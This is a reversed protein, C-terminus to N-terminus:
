LIVDGDANAPDAEKMLHAALERCQAPTLVTRIWVSNLTINLFIEGDKEWESPEISGESMEVRIHVRDEFSVMPRGDIAPAPLVKDVDVWAPYDHGNATRDAELKARETRM